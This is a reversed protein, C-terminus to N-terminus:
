FYRPSMIKKRKAAEFDFSLMIEHTGSNYASLKSLPIDYSYGIAFKNSMRYQLLAGAADGIRYMAGFWFIENYLVNINIDTSIPAGYVVKIMFTPKIKFTENLKIVYGGMLFYHRREKDYISSTGVDGSETIKSEFMKPVSLGIYYKDTYYYVGMGVNPLFKKVSNTSYNPDGPATTTIDTLGISYNNLGVLLGLSLRAKKTIYFRYAYNINLYATKVPGVVDYTFSAGIGIKEGSLPSHIAMTQSSPAGEFGVWQNRSLVYVSIADRSGAYGPNINLTNYMYQTYMPEQQAHALTCIFSFVGLIFLKLTPTYNRM